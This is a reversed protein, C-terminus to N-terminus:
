INSHIKGNLKKFASFPPLYLLLMGLLTKQSKRTWVEGVNITTPRLAGDTDLQKYKKDLQKPIATYDVEEEDLEEVEMSQVEETKGAQTTTTTGAPAAATTSPASPLAASATTVVARAIPAEMARMRPVPMAMAMSMEPVAFCEDDCEEECEEYEYGDEDDCCYSASYAVVPEPEYDYNFKAEQM